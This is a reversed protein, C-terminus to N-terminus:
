PHIPFILNRTALERSLKILHADGGLTSQRFARQVGPESIMQSIAAAFMPKSALHLTCADEIFGARWNDWRDANGPDKAEESFGFEMLQNYLQALYQWQSSFRAYLAAYVAGYIAGFWALTESVRSSLALYSFEAQSRPDFIEMLAVSLAYVPVAVWLAGFLVVFGGNPRDALLWEGSAFQKFHDLKTM